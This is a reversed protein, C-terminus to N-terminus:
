YTDGLLTKLFGKLSCILAGTASDANVALVSVVIHLARVILGLPLDSTEEKEYSRRHSVSGLARSQGWPYFIVAGDHFIPADNMWQERTRALAPLSTLSYVLWPKILTQTILSAVITYAQQYVAAGFGRRLCLTMHSLDFPLVAVSVSTQGSCRPHINMM